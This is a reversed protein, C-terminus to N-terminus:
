LAATAMSERPENSEFKLCFSDGHTCFGFDRDHTHLCIFRKTPKDDFLGLTRNFTTEVTVHEIREGTVNLADGVTDGLFDLSFTPKLTYTDGNICTFEIRSRQHDITVWKFTEGELSRINM